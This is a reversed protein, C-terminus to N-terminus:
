PTLRHVRDSVRFCWRGSVEAVIKSAWEVGGYKACQAYWEAFVEAPLSNWWLVQRQVVHGVEHYFVWQSGTFGLPVWVTRRYACGFAQILECERNRAFVKGPGAMLAEDMWVQYQPNGVVKTERALCNGVGVLWFCVGVVVCFGCVWGVIGVGDMFSGPRFM